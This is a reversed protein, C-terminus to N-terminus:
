KNIKVKIMYGIVISGVGLFLITLVGVLRFIWTVQSDFLIKVGTVVFVLCLIEFAILTFINHSKASNQYSEAVTLKNGVPALGKTFEKSIFYGAFWIGSIILFYIIGAIWLRISYFIVFLALSSASAIMLISSIAFSWKLRKRIEQKKEINPIVYGKGLIGFPYYLLAGDESTKFSGDVIGDFYSM